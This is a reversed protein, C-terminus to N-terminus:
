SLVKKALFAFFGAKKTEAPHIAQEEILTSPSDDSFFEHCIQELNNLLLVRPNIRVKKEREIREVVIMSLLSYGGLEFFNDHIGIVDKALLEKWLSALYHQTPTTPLIIERQQKLPMESPMPLASDDFLGDATKILTEIEVFHRPLLEGSLVTRAFKRIETGTMSGEERLVFWAVLRNEEDSIPILKVLANEISPHQKLTQAIEKCQADSLVLATSTEAQTFSEGPDLMAIKSLPLSPDELASILINKLHYIFREITGHNFIDSNYDLRGMLESSTEKFWLSIDFSSVDTQPAPLQVIEVDGLKQPRTRADQFTFLTQFLPKTSIEPLKEVIHEFPVNQHSAAELSVIKVRSILESFSPNGSCDARLVVTNTFFGIIKETEPRFRGWMPSGINIHPHGSYRHLITAFGALIVMFLTADHKAGLSKLKDVIDRPLDLRVRGGTYSRKQPRPKDTPLQLSQVTGGGLKKRWYAIHADESTESLWKKQWAAYDGYQIPLPPLPSPENRVFAPYLASIEELMIDFSWGDWVMHHSMWFLIHETESLTILEVRFLPGSALNFPVKVQQRLYTFFTEDNKPVHMSMDTVHIKVPSAPTIVQVPENDQLKYTTRLIEHRTTFETFCKELVSRSLTGTLRIVCPLNYGLLNPILQDIFWLSKQCVTLPLPQTRPQIEIPSYLIDDHTLAERLFDILESKRDKIHAQIDSKLVGPLALCKLKDNDLKLSIGLTDLYNIFQATTM